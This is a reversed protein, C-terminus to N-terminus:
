DLPVPETNAQGGPPRRLQGLMDVILIVLAVWVAIFGIWRGSTMEEHLVLTGYLFSMIPTLFQVFGLYSLPLRRASEGFLILPVATLVGSFLVFFSVAAGHSFAELGTLASILVLQLAGVPATVLTEIALGTIGDVAEGGAKHALGYLGFTLALGLAIWPVTGYAIAAILVGVAAVSVAAWQLRTLREGRFVVGLLITFLPNIFYGLATEIVHGTMVGVVFLQWNAYLMIGSLAFWGLQRPSRMIGLVRGWRRSVTVIVACFVLTASVRWPVVELPNVASLLGFYIPFFGWIVYASIGYALGARTRRVPM